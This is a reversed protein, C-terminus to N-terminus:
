FCTEIFETFHYAADIVLLQRWKDFTLCPHSVDFAIMDGVQLDDDPSIKLFAHQDMMKFLQWGRAPTVDQPAADGPRYHRAPSPLGSASGADRRGLGVIACDPQPRSQVYAWVQLAPKLGAGLRRAVASRHAVGAQAHQYIGADHTLYCGPRLVIDVAGHAHAHKFEEAVVDYWVSGAGSLVAPQRAFRGARILEGTWAVAQRLAARVTTEDDVVAEYLEIGALKLADPWRALAALVADRQALDRVGSRGGALGMELLVNLPRGAARFFAGLQDVNAASDVLCFFEFGHNALLDAILAMNQRGVLQNAMLVRRVGGHYAAQAQPATALTIGWAGAALQMRFLRPAMTTKGHPALRVGYAAVFQQMWHLNHALRDAYLVAAPLSVDERLLNWNLHSVDGAGVATPPLPGLGKSQPDLLRAASHTQPLPVANRGENGPPGPM